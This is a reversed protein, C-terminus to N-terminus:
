GHDEAESGMPDVFGMADAVRGAGKGDVLAMCRRALDRLRGADSAIAFAQRYDDVTVRDHTGLYAVYGHESLAELTPVQNTATAVLVSPVGLCCREWTSTGGAGIALDAAAFLPALNPVQVHLTAHPLSRLVEAVAERHPNGAGVVVDITMARWRSTAIATLVKTTENQLDVGGFFLIWRACEGTRPRLNARVERYADDVVAFAPGSLVRTSRPVLAAYREGAIALNQDLLVDAAHPRDALDDIALIRGVFPRLHRQWRADLAYHDVVLWAPRREAPALADVTQEADTRWDTELWAAHPAREERSRAAGTGAPLRRVRYGRGEIQDHLDGAMARCVFEVTAGRRVLTDALTLCRTVHGTGIRSSADVRIAVLRTM